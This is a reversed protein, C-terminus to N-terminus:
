YNHTLEKYGKTCFIMFKILNISAYKITRKITERLTKAKYQVCEINTGVVWFRKNRRLIHTNILM